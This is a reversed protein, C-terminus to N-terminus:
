ICFLLLYQNLPPTINIIIYKITPTNYTGPAIILELKVKIGKSKTNLIPLNEPKSNVESPTYIPPLVPNTIM